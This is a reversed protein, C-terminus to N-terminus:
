IIRFLSNKQMVSEKKKRKNQRLIFIIMSVQKKYFLYSGRAESHICCAMVILLVSYSEWIERQLHSLDSVSFTDLRWELFSSDYTGHLKKVGLYVLFESLFPNANRSLKTRRGGGGGGLGGGWFFLPVSPAHTRRRNTVSFLSAGDFLYALIPQLSQTWGTRSSSSTRTHKTKWELLQVVTM